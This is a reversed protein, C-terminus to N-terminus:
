VTSGAKAVENQVGKDTEIEQLAGGKLVTGQDLVFVGHHIPEGDGPNEQLRGLPYFLLHVTARSVMRIYM